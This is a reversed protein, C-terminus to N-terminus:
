RLIFVGDPVTGYVAGAIFLWLGAWQLHVSGVAQDRVAAALGKIDATRNAKEEKLGTALEYHRKELDARVVDLQRDLDRFNHELAELRDAVSGTGMPKTIKATLNGVATMATLGILGTM